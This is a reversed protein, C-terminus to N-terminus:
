ENLQYVEYFQEEFERLKAEATESQDLQIEIVPTKSFDDDLMPPDPDSM